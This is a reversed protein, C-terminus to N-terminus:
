RQGRIKDPVIVWGVGGIKYMDYTYGPFRKTFDQRHKTFSSSEIPEGDLIYRFHNFLGPRPAEEYIWNPGLFELIDGIRISDDSCM